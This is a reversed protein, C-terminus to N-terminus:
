NCNFASLCQAKDDGTLSSCYSCQSPQTGGAKAPAASPLDFSTFTVNSPPTFQSSDTIWAGCKYNMSANADFGGAPAASGTTQASPDFSMKFGTKEGDMWIYSTNGDVIMHSKVTKGETVSDFDGRMKGGAVYVTGASGENSFTCSQAVGKTLLDKLSSSASSQTETGTGTGGRKGKTMYFYGGLLLLLLIIVIAVVKKSM